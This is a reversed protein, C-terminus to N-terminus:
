PSEQPPADAGGSNGPPDTVTLSPASMFARIVRKREQEYAALAALRAARRNRLWDHAALALGYLGWAAAMALPFAVVLQLESM